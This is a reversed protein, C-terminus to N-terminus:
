HQKRVTLLDWTLDEGSHEGAESFRDRIILGSLESESYSDIFWCHVM